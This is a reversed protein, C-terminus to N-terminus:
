PVLEVEASSLAKNLDSLFRVGKPTAILGMRIAGPKKAVFGYAMLVVMAKQIHLYPRSRCHLFFTRFLKLMGCPVGRRNFEHVLVLCDLQAPTLSVSHKGCVSRLVWSFLFHRTIHLFDLAM